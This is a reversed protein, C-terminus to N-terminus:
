WTRWVSQAAIRKRLRLMRTRERCIRRRSRRRRMRRQVSLDSCYAHIKPAKVRGSVAALVKAEREIGRGSSPSIAESPTTRVVYSGEDSTFRWTLNSNGGSLADARTARQWGLEEALWDTVKAQLEDM